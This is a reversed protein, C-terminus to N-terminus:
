VMMMIKLFSTKITNPKIMMSMMVNKKREDKM